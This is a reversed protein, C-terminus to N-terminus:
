VLNALFPSEPRFFFSHSDDDNDDDFEVYESQDLYWIEALVLFILRQCWIKRLTTNWDSVSFTFMIM